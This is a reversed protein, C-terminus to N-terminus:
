GFFAPYLLICVLGEQVKGGFKTPFGAKKQFIGIEPDEPSNEMMKGVAWMSLLMKFVCTVSLTAPAVAVM